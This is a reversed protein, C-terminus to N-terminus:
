GFVYGQLQDREFELEGVHSKVVDGISVIGGLAGDALVPVHRVRRETMLAMLESVSDEPACTWVDASMISSVPASGPDSDGLHRVVDRESVIGSVRSGDESVVVAGLNHQNLLGVLEAVTADPGIVVVDSGKGALIESVKM